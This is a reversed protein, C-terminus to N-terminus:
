FNIKVEMYPKKSIELLQIYTKNYYSLIFKFIREQIKKERKKDRQPNYLTM